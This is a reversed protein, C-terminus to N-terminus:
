DISVLSRSLEELFLSKAGAWTQPSEFEYACSETRGNEAKSLVTVEVSGTDLKQSWVEYDQNMEVLEHKSNPFEEKVWTEAASLVRCGLLSYSPIATPAKEEFQKRGASRYFSCSSTLLALCLLFLGPSKIM